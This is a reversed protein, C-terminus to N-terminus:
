SGSAAPAPAPLASGIASVATEVADHQSTSVTSHVLSYDAVCVGLQIAAQRVDVMDQHRFHKQMAGLAGLAGRNVQAHAM